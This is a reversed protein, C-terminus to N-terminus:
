EETGAMGYMVKGISMFLLNGKVASELGYALLIPPYETSRKNCCTPNDYLHCHNDGHHFYCHEDQNQNDLQASFRM